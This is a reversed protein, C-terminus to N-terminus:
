RWPSTETDGVIHGAVLEEIESTDFGVEALVGATHEGYAASTQAATYASESFSLPASPMTIPGVRPHDFTEVFGNARAHEGLLAQEPFAVRSCPIGVAELATVLEDSRWRLAAERAKHTLERIHPRPDDPLVWHPDTLSPDTIGLVDALTKQLARSAAIAVVGDGTEYTNWFWRDSALSERRRDFAAEVPPHEADLWDVFEPKWSDVAQIVNANGHQLTLAAQFLSTAVKQGRGTRERTLLAGAVGFALLVGATYDTLFGEHGTPRGDRFAGGSIMLGSAAQVVVDMAPKGGLPGAAGFGSIEGFIIRPNDSALSSYDLALREVLGPRMNSLVVDCSLALRRAIARGESTGLDIPIGRKGRNKIIYQRGEGPVIESNSRTADGSIPEIKIVDAGGHAFLEACYPVAVYQGLELIRYGEFLGTVADLGTADTM